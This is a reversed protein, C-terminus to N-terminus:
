RSMQKTDCAGEEGDEGDEEPWGGEVRRVRDLRADFM